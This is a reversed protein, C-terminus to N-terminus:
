LKEIKLRIEVMKDIAQELEYRATAADCYDQCCIGLNSDVVRLHAEIENWLEEM